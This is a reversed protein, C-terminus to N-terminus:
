VGPDGIEVVSIFVHIGCRVLAIEWEALRRSDLTRPGQDAISQLRRAIRRRLNHRPTPLHQTLDIPKRASLSRLPPILQHSLQSKPPTIQHIYLSLLRPYYTSAGLIKGMTGNDM